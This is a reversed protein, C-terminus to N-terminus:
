AYGLERLRATVTELEDETYVEGRAPIWGRDQLADLTAEASPRAALTRPLERGLDAALASSHAPDAVVVTSIGASALATCAASAAETVPGGTEVLVVCPMGRARLENRLGLSPGTDTAGVVVTLPNM